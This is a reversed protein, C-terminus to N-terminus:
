QKTLLQKIHTLLEKGGHKGHGPIVIEASPFKIILKNITPSWQEVNADSLNGLNNSSLDKVMCGPFLIKESPIWVVINDTSHGGGLFYCHVDINNLKLGLSDTFGTQPVPLGKHKAIDVTMQNAYSKVGQKHLYSLGGMCDEHWHNPVFGVVSINMSDALWTLLTETQEDDWPSDFLLAKGNDILLLGNAGVKGYSQTQFLSLHIYAKDSLQVLSIDESIKIINSQAFVNLQLLLIGFITLIKKM